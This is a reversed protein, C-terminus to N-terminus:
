IVTVNVFDDAMEGGNDQIFLKVHYPEGGPRNNTRV